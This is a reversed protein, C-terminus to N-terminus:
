RKSLKSTLRGLNNKKQLDKLHQKRLIEFKRVDYGHKGLINSAHRAGVFDPVIVYSAGLKYFILADEYTNAVCIIIANENRKLVQKIVVGTVDVFPITSVILKAAELNIEDLVETDAADAYLSSIKRQELKQIVEPNFDVVLCDKNKKDFGEILEPGIKDYGFLITEYGKIRGVTKETIVKREFYRIYKSFFQYLGRTHTAMYSSTAITIVGVITIMGLLDSGIHGVAVGLSLLILSFESIQANIMGTKFATRKTYGLYCIIMIIILPNGIIVFLSFIIIPIWNQSLSTLSVQSGIVVFFLLIFFDRLSRMKTSIEHRYPSLSLSMGALLAGVEISFNLFYFITAIIMCWGTSFLLLDEQSKAISKLIKPLLWIGAAYLLAVLGFGIVLTELIMTGLNFEQGTSSVFMLVLMAVLDQIILLGISIRGYLDTMDGKDALIKAVIITSSFTLALSIYLSNVMSYGLLLSISIGGLFTFLIQGLGVYVSVKGLHKLEKPNLHLGVMFLLLAVGLHSYTAFSGDDTVYNLVSPGVIVGTIIYGIIAPQKLLRMFSAVIVAVIIIISLEFFSSEIM